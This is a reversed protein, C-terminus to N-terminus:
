FRFDSESRRPGCFVAAAALIVTTPPHRPGATERKTVIGSTCRRLRQCAKEPQPFLSGSSVYELSSSFPKSSGKSRTLRQYLAVQKLSCLKFGAHRPLESVSRHAQVLPRSRCNAIELIGQASQPATRAIHGHRHHGQRESDPRVRGNERQEILDQQPQERHLIRLLQNQERHPPVMVPAVPSPVGNRM